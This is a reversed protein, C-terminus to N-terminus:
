SKFTDLDLNVHLATLYGLLHLLLLEFVESEKQSGVEVPVCTYDGVLEKFNEVVAFLPYPEIPWLTNECLINNM